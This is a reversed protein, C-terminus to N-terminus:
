SGRRSEHAKAFWRQQEVLGAGERREPSRWVEMDPMDLLAFIEASRTETMAKLEDWKMRDLAEGTEKWIAVYRQGIIGEEETM